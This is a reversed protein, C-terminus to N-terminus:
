DTTILVNTLLYVSTQPRTQAREIIEGVRHFYDLSAQRLERAATEDASFLRDTADVLADSALSMAHGRALAWALAVILFAPVFTAIAFLAMQQIDLAALGAPGFYGWLWAAAAGVWLAACVSAVMMTILGFRSERPRVSVAEPAPKEGGSFLVPQNREFQPTAM